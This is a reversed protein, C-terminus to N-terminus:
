FTGGSLLDVTKHPNKPQQQRKLATGEAYLPEWALPRVPAVAALRCWLWLLVSDSDRTHGVGCSVIVGSGRGM